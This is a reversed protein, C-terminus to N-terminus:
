SENPVALVWKAPNSTTKSYALECVDEVDCENEVIWDYGTIGADLVGDGVYKGMEQARLMVIQIQDDDIGPFYSRDSDLIDFGAKNFLEVTAKQLSGAPIGLKLREESM